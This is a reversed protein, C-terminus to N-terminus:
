RDNLLRKEIFHELARHDIIILVPVHLSQLDSRWRKLALVITLMEKDHIPYDMEVKTINKSYYGIPHFFGDIGKQFFVKICIFISSNTELITKIVSDFHVLIPARMFANKFYEFFKQYKDIWCWRMIKKIFDILPQAIRGYENIFRRYFNCFGLFSQVGKVTELEAWDKIVSIKDFDVVIREIFIIFGLFRTRIVSFESKKIDVQLGAERLREFVQRVYAEYEEPDKSYIFIDDVYVTCCEDM